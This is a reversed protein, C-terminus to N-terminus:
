CKVHIAYTRAPRGTLFRGTKIVTEDVIRGNPCQEALVRLAAADRTAKNDPDYGIDIVNRISVARGM